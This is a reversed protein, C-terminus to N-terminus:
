QNPLKDITKPLSMRAYAKCGCFGRAIPRCRVHRRGGPFEISALIARGLQEEDLRWAAGDRLARIPVVM